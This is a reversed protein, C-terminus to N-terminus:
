GKNVGSKGVLRHLVETEFGMHPWLTENACQDISASETTSDMNDVLVRYLFDYKACPDYGSEGRPPCDKNVNRKYISKIQVYIAFHM